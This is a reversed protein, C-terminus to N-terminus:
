KSYVWELFDESESHRNEIEMELAPINFLTALGFKDGDLSVITEFLCDYVPIASHFGVAIWLMQAPKENEAENLEILINGHLDSQFEVQAPTNFEPAFNMMQGTKLLARIADLGRQRYDVITIAPNNFGIVDYVAREQTCNVFRLVRDGQIAIEAFCTIRDM